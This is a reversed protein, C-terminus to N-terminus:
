GRRIEAVQGADDSTLTYTRERRAIRVRALPPAEDGERPVLRLEEIDIAYHALHLNAAFFLGVQRCTRRDEGTMEEPRHNHLRLYHKLQKQDLVIEETV